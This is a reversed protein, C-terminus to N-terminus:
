LHAGLENRAEAVFGWGGCFVLGAMVVAGANGPQCAYAVTAVTGGIWLLVLAVLAVLALLTKTEHTV